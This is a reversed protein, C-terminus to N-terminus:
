AWRLRTDSSSTCRKKAAANERANRGCRFGLLAISVAAWSLLATPEPVEAFTDASGAGVGPMIVANQFNNAFHGPFNISGTNLIVGVSAGFDAQLAGDLDNFRFEFRRSGTTPNFGFGSITGSLLVQNNIGRSPISGTITLSGGSKFAGSGDIQVNIDFTGNIASSPFDPSPSGPYDLSAIVGTARFVDSSADYTVIVGSATLDPRGGTLNLLAANATSAASVVV